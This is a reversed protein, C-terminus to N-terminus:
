DRIRAACIALARTMRWEVTKASIGCRRGIEDYTLGQFRSLVFVERLKPPLELIVQKLLALSEQDGERWLQTEHLAEAASAEPAHIRDQRHREYAARTALTMLLARPSRLSDNAYRAARAFAEQSLDEAQDRGFRRRLASVLWAGHRRYLVELGAAPPKPDPIQADAAPLTCGSEFAARSASALATAAGRSAGRIPPSM